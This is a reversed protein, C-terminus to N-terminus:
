SDPDSIFLFYFIKELEAVRESRPEIRLALSYEIFRSEDLSQSSLLEIHHYHLIKLSATNTLIRMKGSFYAQMVAPM